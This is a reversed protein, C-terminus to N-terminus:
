REEIRQVIIEDGLCADPDKQWDLKVYIPFIPNDLNLKSGNPLNYFRFTSDQIEIFYGGCCSCERNDFGTIVGNSEYDDSTSCSLVFLLLVLAVCIKKLM